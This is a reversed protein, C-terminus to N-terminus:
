AHSRCRLSFSFLGAARRFDHVRAKHEQFSAQQLETAEARVAARATPELQCLGNRWSSRNPTTRRCRWHSMARIWRTRHAAIPRNSWVELGTSRSALASNTTRSESSGASTSQVFAQGNIAAASYADSVSFGGPTTLSLIRTMQDRGLSIDLSELAYPLSVKRDQERRNRVEMLILPLTLMLGELLDPSATLTLPPPFAGGGLVLTTEQGDDSVTFDLLIDANFRDTM